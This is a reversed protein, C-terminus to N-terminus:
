FQRSKQLGFHRNSICFGRGRCSFAVVMEEQCRECQVHVVGHELRGCLLYARLERTVFSPLGGGEGESAALFTDLHAELTRYLVSGEPQRRQYTPPSCVGPM